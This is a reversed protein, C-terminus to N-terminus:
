ESGNAADEKPATGHDGGFDVPKGTHAPRHDRLRRKMRRLQKELRELAGDGSARAKDAECHAQVEIGTGVHVSCDTRYGHREKAVIVSAEISDSFYKSVGHHLRDGIHTRLAEDVDFHKGQVLVQM